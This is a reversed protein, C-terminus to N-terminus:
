SRFRPTWADELRDDDDEDEVEDPPEMGSLVTLTKGYTGLGIVEEVVTQRHPGGFWDQLASTGKHDAGNRVNETNANFRFTETDAALPTGKRIWDLHPFDELARSMFAYDITREASRIVAVPDRACQAYRIATAEISTRCSESLTKIAALGDGCRRLEVSFLGTPMLLSSAFHDAEREYRDDSQFGARSLHRGTADVVADVHGPLRYHGIEHGVSFRKFGDSDIHTPYGIGFQGNVHLLMGSAGGANAPMAMLAIGLKEAIDFPDIALSTVGVEKLLQEAEWRAKMYPDARAM